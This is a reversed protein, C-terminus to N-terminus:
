GVHQNCWLGAHGGRPAGERQQSRQRGQACGGHSTGKGVFRHVRCAILAADPPAILVGVEDAGLVQARRHPM